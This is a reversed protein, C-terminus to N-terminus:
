MMLLMQEVEDEIEYRTPIYGILPNLVATSYISLDHESMMSFLQNRQERLGYSIGIRHGGWKEPYAVHFINDPTIRMDKERKYPIYRFNQASNKEAEMRARDKKPPLIQPEDLFFFMIQSQGRKRTIGRFKFKYRSIWEM